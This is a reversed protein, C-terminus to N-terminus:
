AWGMRECLSTIHALHHRGHWAYLGLTWDLGIRGHDPHRFVRAWQEEGLGRLLVAWRRHLNELLALSWEIPASTSDPLEAWRDEEYTKVTPENETLALKFRILGNLHSDGLHHVVQRVRWGEPRYPTELQQESLGSVAGRLRSPLEEIQAIFAVREAASVTSQGVFKGIPYRLDNM